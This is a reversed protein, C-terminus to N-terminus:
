NVNIKRPKAAEVKPLSLRLVGDKLEAQIRSADVTHDHQLTLAYSSDYSERYLSTWEGPQQWQRRGHISIIGDEVSIDLGEKAVGPLQVTLTWAEPTQSIRYAPKLTFEPQPAREAATTTTPNVKSLISNIFSM